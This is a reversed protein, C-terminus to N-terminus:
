QATFAKERAVTGWDVTSINIYWSQNADAPFLVSGTVQTLNVSYVTPVIVTNGTRNWFTVTTGGTEFNTGKMTFAIPAGRNGKVPTISGFAPVPYQQIVIASSRTGRGGDITTVNLRWFLTTPADPPVTVTGILRTPTVSILSMSIDTSNAPHTLNVYTGSDPQFNTGTVTIPFTRNRYSQGPSVSIIVPKPMANVTFARLKSAGGGSVTFVDLRYKGSPANYPITFTGTMKSSTVSALSADVQPASTSYLRVWTGGGPQFYSGTIQFPVTTNKYGYSQNFTSILPLPLFNIVFAADLSSTGGDVTTVVLDYNASSSDAPVALQGTLKTRTLSDITSYIREGTYSNVLSINTYGSRTQFNNGNLTFTVTTNRSGAAPIISTISPAPFQMVTFVADKGGTGGDVTRITVNYLTVTSADEPILITGNIKTTTISTVGMGTINLLTGSKNWFTVTTYGPQFNTGTITYNITANRYWPSAPILSVVTPKPVVNVNFASDKWITGGNATTISVNWPGIPANYPVHITGNIRTVTMSIVGNESGNLSFGSKNQFTIVTNNPQFSTGAISYNITANRSWTGPPTISNITPVHQKITFGGAFTGFNGGPNTVVVNYTGANNTRLDFTCRIQTPSVTVGTGAATGVDVIELAINGVSAIYAYHGSVFVSNAGNLLAGGSGDAISSKHLPNSPNSIDVIELSNNVYNTVYAYNGSIFVSSAGTLLAGGSGNVISGKHVPNAPDSVDVIELANSVFSTVYAYNGSVYVSDAGTLLAGGSGNVISGKHVPNAPDSVDVIELANSVFSAIYAYNGSVYVREAGNLHASGSGDVLYGKHVPKAPNSVDVIELANSYYSAVYAYNGSVHVSIAGNLMAGGSGNVISGKHVPKAPNSVDVIELANSYYSAVYAYNGSVYVSTSGNLTAGVSGDVISGKHVPKAPNSIDVIELANSAYSAIYAYNGSIYVGYAGSLAAGDSGNVISGKHMPNVNVPTLMITAGPMFNTGSLNTIMVTTTNIGYAPTVGSVLPDAANAIGVLLALAAFSVCFFVSLPVKPGDNM